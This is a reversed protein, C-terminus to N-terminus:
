MGFLTSQRKHLPPTMHSRRISGLVKRTINTKSPDVVIKMFSNRQHKLFSKKHTTLDLDFVEGAFCFMDHATIVVIALNSLTPLM